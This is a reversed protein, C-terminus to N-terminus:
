YNDTVIFQYAIFLSCYFQNNNLLLYWNVIFLICILNAKRLLRVKLVTYYAIDFRALTVFLKIDAQTITTGTLYRRKSLLDELKDLHEFLASVASEYDEQSTSYGAGYVGLIIHSYM